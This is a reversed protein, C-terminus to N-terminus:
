NAESKEAAENYEGIYVSCAENTANLLQRGAKLLAWIIEAIDREDATTDINPHESKWEYFNDVIDNIADIVISYCHNLSSESDKSLLKM